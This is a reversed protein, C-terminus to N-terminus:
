DDALRKKVSTGFIESITEEGFIKLNRLNLIGFSNNPKGMKDALLWVGEGALERTLPPSALNWMHLFETTGDARKIALEPSLKIRLLGSDSKFFDNTTEVFEFNGGTLWTYFQNLAALTHTREPARVITAAIKKAEEFTIEERAIQDCLSKLKKYFDYGGAQTFRKIEGIKGRPKKACIKLFTTFSLVLPNM